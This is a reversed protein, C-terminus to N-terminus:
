HLIRSTASTTGHGYTKTKRNSDVHVVRDIFVTVNDNANEYRLLLEKFPGNSRGNSIEDRPLSGFMRAASLYSSNPPLWQGWLDSLIKM